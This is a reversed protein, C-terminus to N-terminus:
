MVTAIGIGIAIRQEPDPIKENIGALEARIALAAQV